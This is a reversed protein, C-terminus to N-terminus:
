YVGVMVNVSIRKGNSLLAWKDKGYEPEVLEVITSTYLKDNDWYTVEMGVASNKFIPRTYGLGRCRKDIATKVAPHKYKTM